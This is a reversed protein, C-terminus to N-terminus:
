EKIGTIPVLAWMETKAYPRDMNGIKLKDLVAIAVFANYIGQSFDAPLNLQLNRESIIEQQQFLEAAKVIAGIEITHEIRRCSFIIKTRERRQIYIKEEKSYSFSPHSMVLDM